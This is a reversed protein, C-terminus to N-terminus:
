LTGFLEFKYVNATGKNFRAMSARPNKSARQQLRLQLQGGKSGFYKFNNVYIQVRITFYYNQLKLVHKCICLEFYFWSVLFLPWPRDGHLWTLMRCIHLARCFVHSKPPLFFLGQFWLFFLSFWSKGGFYMNKLLFVFCFFRKKLFM